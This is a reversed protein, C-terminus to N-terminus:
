YEGANIQLPQPSPLHEGMVYGYIGLEAALGEDVDGNVWDAARQAAQQLVAVQESM